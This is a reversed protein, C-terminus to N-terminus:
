QLSAVTQLPSNADIRGEKLRILRDACSFYSDDHSIVIVAKGATKLEPLLTRYFVEKFEPDQDAAWEDFLYAPRDEIYASVLALRKRQGSSLKITSYMGSQASVKDDIRFAKLYRNVRDSVCQGTDGSIEEFLHFDALVASFYQRYDESNLESLVSGNLRVEGADAQYLGLIVMALTSKGSGNGGVLFVIEGSQITLDIPGLVFRQDNEASYQHRIGRLELHFKDSRVFCARGDSGRSQLGGELSRIKDLSVRAQGMVPLAHLADTIAARVFLLTIVAGALTGKPLYLWHPLVFLFIGISAFYMLEGMSMVLSFRQLGRVGLLRVGSAQSAIVEEVYHRGRTKNLQLERSGEILKRLKDYLGDLGDRARELDRMPWRRLVHTVSVGFVLLGAFILLLPWRLWGLYALSAGIIVANVILGLLVQYADSLVDVDKTVVALLRYGGLSQLREQSTALIRRCLDLRLDYLVGQSLELMAKAGINRAIVHLLCVGALACGLLVRSVDERIGREVIAAIATYCLGALLGSLAAVLLRGWERQGIFRILEM